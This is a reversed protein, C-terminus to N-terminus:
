FIVVHNLTLGLIQLLFGVAITELAFRIFRPENKELNHDRYETVANGLYRLSSEEVGDRFVLFVDDRDGEDTEELTIRVLLRDESARRNIAQAIWDFGSDRLDISGEERLKEFTEAVRDELDRDVVFETLSEAFALQITGLMNAVLGIIVLFLWTGPWQVGVM